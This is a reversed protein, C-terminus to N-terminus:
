PRLMGDVASGYHATILMNRSDVVILRIRIRPIGDGVQVGKIATSPWLTCTVHLSM